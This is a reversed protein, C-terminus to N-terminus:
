LRGAHVGRAEDNTRRQKISRQKWIMYGVLGIMVFPAWEGVFDLVPRATEIVTLAGDEVPIDEGFITTWATGVAGFITATWGAGEAEDTDRVTGSGTRRVDDVTMDRRPEMERRGDAVMLVGLLEDDIGPVLGMGHDARFALVAARTRRGWMGDVKGAEHYGLERLRRQVARITEPEPLDLTAEEAEDMVEIEVDEVRAFKAYARAMKTHYGNKRYGPGNYVRAVTEWREAALDGAIGNVLIFNVMAEVHEEEDDMFALWMEQPTDYGVM